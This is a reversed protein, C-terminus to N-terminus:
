YKLGGHIESRAKLPHGLVNADRFLNTRAIPTLGVPPPNNSGFGLPRGYKSPPLPQMAAPVNAAPQFGYTLIKHLSAPQDRSLDERKIGPLRVIVEDDKKEYKM